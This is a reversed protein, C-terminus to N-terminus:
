HSESDGDNFLGETHWRRPTEHCRCACEDETPIGALISGANCDCTLCFPKEMSPDRYGTGLLPLKEHIM